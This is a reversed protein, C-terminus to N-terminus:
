AERIYYYQEHPECELDVPILDFKLGCARQLFECMQKGEWLQFTGADTVMARAFAMAESDTM